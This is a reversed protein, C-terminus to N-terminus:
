YRCLDVLVCVHMHACLSMSYMRLYIHWTDWKGCQINLAEFLLQSYNFKCYMFQTKFERELPKITPFNTFM